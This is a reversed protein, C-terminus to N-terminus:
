GPCIELPYTQWPKSSQYFLKLLYIKKNGKCYTVTYQTKVVDNLNSSPCLGLTKDHSSFFSITHSREVENDIIIDKPRNESQCLTPISDEGKYPDIHPKLLNHIANVRNEIWQNAEPLEFTGIVQIKSTDFRNRSPPLSTCFSLLIFIFYKHFKM